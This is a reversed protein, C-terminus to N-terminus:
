PCPCDRVEGYGRLVAGQWLSNVHSKLRRLGNQFRSTWFKM